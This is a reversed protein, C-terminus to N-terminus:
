EVAYFMGVAHDLNIIDLCSGIYQALPRFIGSPIELTYNKLDVTAKYNTM